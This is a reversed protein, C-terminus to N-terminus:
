GDTVAGWAGQKVLCDPYAAEYKTLRNRWPPARQVGHGLSVTEAHLYTDFDFEYVDGDRDPIAIWVRSIDAMIRRLQQVVSDQIPYSEKKKLYHLFDGEKSQYYRVSLYGHGPALNQRVIWGVETGGDVDTHPIKVRRRKQLRLDPTGGGFDALDATM